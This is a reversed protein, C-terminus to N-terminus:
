VQSIDSQSMRTLCVYGLVAVFDTRFKGIYVYKVVKMVRESKEASSAVHTSVSLKDRQSM